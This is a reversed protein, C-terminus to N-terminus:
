HTFHLVTKDSQLRKCPPIVGKLQMIKVRTETPDHSSFWGSIEREVTAPLDSIDLTSSLVFHIEKWKTLTSKSHQEIFKKM